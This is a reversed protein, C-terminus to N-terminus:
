NTNTKPESPSKRLCDTQKIARDKEMTNEGEMKNLTFPLRNANNSYGKRNNEAAVKYLTFSL